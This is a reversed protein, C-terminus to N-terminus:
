QSYRYDDYSLAFVSVGAYGMEEVFKAKATVSKVNEFSVWHGNYVAYAKNITM